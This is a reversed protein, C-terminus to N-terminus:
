KERAYGYREQVLGVLRELNGNVQDLDDNTLKGWQAKVAGRIQLWKGQLEDKNMVRGERSKTQGIPAASHQCSCPRHWASRSEDQVADVRAVRQLCLTVTKPYGAVTGLGDHAGRGFLRTGILSFDRAKHHNAAGIECKRRAPPVRPPM